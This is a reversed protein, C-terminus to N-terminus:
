AAGARGDRERAEHVGGRGKVCHPCWSRFPVHTLMHEDVEAQTPLTPNHIKKPARTGCEEEGESDAIIDGDQNGPAEVSGM